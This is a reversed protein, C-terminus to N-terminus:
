YQPLGYMQFCVQWNHCKNFSFRYVGILRRGWEKPYNSEQERLKKIASHLDPAFVRVGSCTATNSFKGYWQPGQPSPHFGEARQIDYWTMPYGDDNIWNM